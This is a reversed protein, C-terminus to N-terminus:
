WEAQPQKARAKEIKDEKATEVDILDSLISCIRANKSLEHRQLELDEIDKINYYDQDLCDIIYFLEEKTFM